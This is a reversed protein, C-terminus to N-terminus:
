KPKKKRVYFFAAAVVGVVAIIAAGYLEYPPPKEAKNAADTAQRFLDLAKVYDGVEFTMNAQRFLSKAQDLGSSRSESEAKKIANTAQDAASKVTAYQNELENAQQILLPAKTLNEQATKLDDSSLAKICANLAERAEKVKSLAKPNQWNKGEAEQVTSQTQDLSKAAQVPFTYHWEMPIKIGALLRSGTMGKKDSHGAWVYYDFAKSDGITALPFQFSVADREFKFRDESMPISTQSSYTYLFGKREDDRMRVYIQYDTGIDSIPKLVIGTKPDQDSDIEIRWALYSDPPNRDPIPGAVTIRVLVDLNNNILSVEVKRIMLYDGFGVVRKGDQNYLDTSTSTHVQVWTAASAPRVSANIYFVSLLFSLVLLAMKPSAM